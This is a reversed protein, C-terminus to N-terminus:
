EDRLEKKNLYRRILYVIGTDLMALGIVLFGANNTVVGNKLFSDQGLCVRGISFVTLYLGLFSFLACLIGSNRQKVPDYANKLILTMMCVMIPLSTQIIFVTMAEMRIDLLSTAFFVALSLFIATFFGIQFAKGREVMQREDFTENGARM